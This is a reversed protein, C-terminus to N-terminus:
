ELGTVVNLGLAEARTKIVAITQPNCRESVFYTNASGDPREKEVLAHSMAMAEAAATAEVGRVIV